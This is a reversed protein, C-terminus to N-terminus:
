KCDFSTLKGGPQTAFIKSASIRCNFLTSRSRYTYACSDESEKEGQTLRVTYTVGSDDITQNTITYQICSRHSSGGQIKQSGIPKSVLDGKTEEFEIAEFHDALGKKCGSFLVMASIATCYLVIPKM